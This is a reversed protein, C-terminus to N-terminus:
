VGPFESEAGGLYHLQTLRIQAAKPSVVFGEAVRAVLLEDGCGLMREKAVLKELATRPMILAGAGRAAQWEAWDSKGRSEIGDRNCVGLDSRGRATREPQFLLAQDSLFAYIPGHFRVHVFEHAITMRRPNEYRENESLQRAIGVTPKRGARFRTQGWLDDDQFDAYHDVSEVANELMLVLDTTTIPYVVSGNQDRLFQEVIAECEYDLEEPEFHPREAFRGTHDKVWIM